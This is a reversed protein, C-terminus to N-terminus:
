NKTFNQFVKIGKDITSKKWFKTFKWCNPIWFGLTKVLWIWFWINQYITERLSTERNSDGNQKSSISWKSGIRPVPDFTDETKLMSWSISWHDIQKELGFTKKPGKSQNKFKTSFEKQKDAEPLGVTNASTEVKFYRGSPSSQFCVIKQLYIKM